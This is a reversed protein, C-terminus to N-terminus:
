SAEKNATAPTYSPPPADPNPTNHSTKVVHGTARATDPPRANELATEPDNDVDPLETDATHTKLTHSEINVFSRGCEVCKYKRFPM